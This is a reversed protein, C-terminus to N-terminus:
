LENIWNKMIDLDAPLLPPYGAQPMTRPGPGQTSFLNRFYLKSNAPNKPTVLGSVIFDQASYRKWAGHCYLCSPKIMAKVALFNPTGSDIYIGYISEDLASTNEIKGCGLSILVLIGALYFRKM